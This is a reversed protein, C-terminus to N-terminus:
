IVEKTWCARCYRRNKWRYINEETRPHGNSCTPRVFQENLRAHETRSIAQLHEPNVCSRHKCVSTICNLTDSSHCTHDVDYGEPIAGAFEQYSLRHAIFTKNRFKLQGYGKRNVRKQWLWCGDEDILISALIREKATLSSSLRTM